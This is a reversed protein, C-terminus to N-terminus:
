LRKNRLNLVTSNTQFTQEKEKERTEFLIFMVASEMTTDTERNVESMQKLQSEKFWIVLSM